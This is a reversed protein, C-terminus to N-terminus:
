DLGDIQLHSSGFFQELHLKVSRRFSDLADQVNYRFDHHMQEYQLHVRNLLHQVYANVDGVRDHQAKTYHSVAEKFVHLEADLYQKFVSQQFVDLADQVGYRFDEHIAEYQSGVRVILDHAHTGIEGIRNSQAKAFRSMTHKFTDLESTLYQKFDDVAVQQHTVKEFHYGMIAMRVANAFMHPYRM